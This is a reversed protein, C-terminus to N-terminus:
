FNLLAGMESQSLIAWQAYGLRIVFHYASGGRTKVASDDELQHVGLSLVVEARIPLNSKVVM